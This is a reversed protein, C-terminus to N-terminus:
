NTGLNRAGSLLVFFGHESKHWDLDMLCPMPVILSFPFYSDRDLCANKQKMRGIM